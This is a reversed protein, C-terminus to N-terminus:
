KVSARARGRALGQHPRRGADLAKTEFIHDRIADDLSEKFRVTGAAIERLSTVAVKNECFVTATSGAALERARKAALICLAFHNPLRSLCDQTSIRAM